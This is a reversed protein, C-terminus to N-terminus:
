GNTTRSASEVVQCHLLGDHHIPYERTGGGSLPFWNRMWRQVHGLPFCNGQMIQNNAFPQLLHMREAMAHIASCTLNLLSTTTGLSFDVFTAFDHTKFLHNSSWMRSHAWAPNMDRCV